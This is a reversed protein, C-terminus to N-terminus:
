TRHLERCREHVQCGCLATPFASGATNAQALQAAEQLQHEVALGLKRGEGQNFFQGLVDEIRRVAGDAELGRGQGQFGDLAEALVELM